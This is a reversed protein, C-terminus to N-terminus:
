EDLDKSKQTFEQQDIEGKAYREKLIDRSSKEPETPKKRISLLRMLAWVIGVFLLICVLWTFGSGYGMNFGDNMM